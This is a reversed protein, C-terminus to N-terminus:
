FFQLFLGLFILSKGVEIWGTTQLKVRYLTAAAVLNDLLPLLPILRLHMGHYAVAAFVVAIVTLVRDLPKRILVAKIKFVGAGFYLAVGVFLRIDMGGTLLFKALVAALSLLVFGLLETLVFHEGAIRNMALYAAPFVLLPLLRPIDRNFVALLIITAILIQGLFVALSRRDTARRIMKTFAQKSNILLGLALFVPLAKWSFRGSVGLGILYAITLVSWSGYEKLLYGKADNRM